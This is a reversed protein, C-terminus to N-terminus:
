AGSRQFTVVVEQSSFGGSWGSGTNVDVTCVVVPITMGGVEIRMETGPEVDVAEADPNRLHSLVEGNPPWRLVVGHEGSHGRPGECRLGRGQSTCRHTPCWGEVAACRECGRM